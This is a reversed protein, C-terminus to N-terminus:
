FNNFKVEVSGWNCYRKLGDLLTTINKEQATKVFSLQNKVAAKYSSKAIKANIQDQTM